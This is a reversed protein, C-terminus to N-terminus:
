RWRFEALIDFVVAVHDNMVVREVEVISVDFNHASVREEPNVRGRDRKRRGFKSLGEGLRGKEM